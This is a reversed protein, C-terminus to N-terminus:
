VLRGVEDLLQTGVVSWRHNQTVYDHADAGMEVRREPSRLLETVARTFAEGFEEVRFQEGPTADIGESGIPTTVVPRRLAMAELIKNQIGTGTRMPAVVLDAVSVYDTPDDVFGTVRVGPRDDLQRVRKTPSAGVIQFEADPHARKVAPFLQETFSVVARVNPEYDMQGVFVVVPDERGDPPSTTQELLEESVGNTYVTLNGFESDPDVARRDRETAIFAHDVEALLRHEYANMRRAELRHVPATLRGSFQSRRRYNLSYADCLDVVSPRGRDFLYPAMRPLYAYLLDYRRERSDIWGEVADFHAYGRRVPGGSVASFLANSYYNLRSFQFYEVADFQSRLQSLAQEDPSGTEVILLSVTHESSLLRATHYMRVRAGDTLPYPTRPCLLLVRPM